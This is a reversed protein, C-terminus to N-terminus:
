FGRRMRESAMLKALLEDAFALNIHKQFVVLRDLEVISRLDARARLRAADRPQRSSPPWCRSNRPSSVSSSARRRLGRRDGRPWSTTTATRWADMLAARDATGAKSTQADRYRHYETVPPRGRPFTRTAATSRVHPIAYCREVQRNLQTRPAIATAWVARTRSGLTLRTGSPGPGGPPWRPDAIGESFGSRRVRTARADEDHRRVVRVGTPRVVLEAPQHAAAM